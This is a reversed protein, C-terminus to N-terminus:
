IRKEFMHHKYSLGRKSLQIAYYGNSDRGMEPDPFKTVWIKWWLKLVYPPTNHLIFKLHPTNRIIENNPALCQAQGESDCNLYPVRKWIQRFENDEIYLNCFLKDMWLYETAYNNKMWYSDCAQKWKVMIPNNKVSAIFWCAPFGDTNNYMWIGAPKIAEDIWDNLPQMCLLTSDVWVGGHNKLLSLRIIDSMAQASIEKSPDYIYDIDNVYFKLNQLTIFRINWGENNLIWSEVVEKVLWPIDHWGQIWTMWITKNFQAM